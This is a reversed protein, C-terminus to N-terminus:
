TPITQQLFAALVINVIVASLGIVVLGIIAYIIQRKAQNVTEEDGESMIYKVGAYVLFIAAAIGVLGLLANVVDRIGGQVTGSYVNNFWPVYFDSILIVIAASLGIVTLGIIAYVIQRKAQAAEEEDGTSSIYKFGAYILFIVAVTGALVLIVDVYYAIYGALQAATTSGQVTSVIDYALGAVILGLVAYAIQMKARKAEEEDGRSMIYKFGAYILFIVAVTGILLLAMNIFPTVLSIIPAAKEAATPELLANKITRAGLAVIIGLIAYAIQMKARKAEEEDGRSSIYKFGAYILFIVALTGILTIAMEIFPDLFDIITQTTAGQCPPGGPFGCPGGGPGLQNPVEQIEALAPLATFALILLLAAPLSLKFLRLIM